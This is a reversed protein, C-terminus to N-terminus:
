LPEWCYEWGKHSEIFEVIKTPDTINGAFEAYVIIKGSPKMVPFLTELMPKLISIGDVGGWGSIPWMNRLSVQQAPKQGVISITKARSLIQADDSDISIADPVPMFPPNSLAFDVQDGGLTAALEKEDGVITVKDGVGNLFVNFKSVNIARRDKEYGVMKKVEPFLKLAAILQIGSGSGMDVGTGSLGDFDPLKNVLEYSDLGAYVREFKSQEVHDRFRSDAFIYVVEGDSKRGLRKSMLSLGNMRIRNYGSEVFLGVDIFDDILRSKGGLLIELRERTLGESFMLFEFGLKQRPTMTSDSIGLSCNWVRVFPRTTLKQTLCPIPPVPM